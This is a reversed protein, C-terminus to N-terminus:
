KSLWKTLAVSMADTDVTSNTLVVIAQKREPYFGAYSSYGGTKGNHWHWGSPGKFWGLGVSQGNTTSTPQQTLTMAKTLPTAPGNGLEAKLYVIMDNVTSRIGGAGVLTHLDWASVAEAKDNYGQAFRNKQDDTLTVTTNRLGLPKTIRESLLQEYSQKTVIELITGLLGVGLNSYETKEGPKQKLEAKKLYTMLEQRDYHKYPNKMDAKASFLNTPLRPLGSSHNSLTKLSVPVGEKQLAPISDPLYRNIPDDLKVNGRLVADALMTATFTKSISGIEFLTNANPLQKNDKTTEGYSYVFLSDNQWVGLCLGVAPYKNFYAQVLSDVQKDLATRLPNNTPLVGMRKPLDPQHPQFLFTEIHGTADRSLYFDILAKEFTAEYKAVGGDISKRDILQWHGLQQYLGAMIPKFQAQPIQKRFAEGAMAYISDAQQANYYHRSRNALSDLPAAQAWVTSIPWMILLWILIVYKM